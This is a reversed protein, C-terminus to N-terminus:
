LALDARLETALAVFEDFSVREPRVRLDLGVAEIAEKLRPKPIGTSNLANPLTKRRTQFSQRVLTKFAKRLEPDPIRTGAIPQFRVVASHVRPPPRFAGPPLTMVIESDAYLQSMLALVGYENDGCGAVFRLAVERQFMLALSDFREMVDALRFFVETAVNYPLNAACKWKALPADGPSDAVFKADYDALIEALNQALIDGEILDFGPHPALVEGLFAVLDRDLEVALVNAGLGLITTSLTGPGPGIELVRDGEVINAAAAIGGLINPDVLFHQGFRKKAQREYRRVLEGATQLPEM